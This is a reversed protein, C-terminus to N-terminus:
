RYTRHVHIHTHTVHTHTRARSLYLSLSLTHTHTNTHTHKIVELSLIDGFMHITSLGRGKKGFQTNILFHNFDLVCM